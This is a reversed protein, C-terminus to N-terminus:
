NPLTEASIVQHKQLWVIFGEFFYYSNDFCYSKGMNGKGKGKTCTVKSAHQYSCVPTQAYMIASSPIVKLIKRIMWSGHHDLIM